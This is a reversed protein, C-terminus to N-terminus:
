RRRTDPARCRWCPRTAPCVQRSGRLFEGLIIQSEDGPATCAAICTRGRSVALMGATAQRGPARGRGAPRRSRPRRRPAARRERVACAETSSSIPSQRISSAKADVVGVGMDVGAGIHQLFVDIGTEARAECVERRVADRDLRPREIALHAVGVAELLPEVHAGKPSASALGPELRHGPTARAFRRGLKPTTSSRESLRTSSM